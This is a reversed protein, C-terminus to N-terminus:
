PTRERVVVGNKYYTEKVRRGANWTEVLFLSGHDYLNVTITEGGRSLTEKVVVGARSLRALVTGDANYTYIWTEPPGASETSSDTIRGQTDYNWHRVEVLTGKVTVMSGTLRGQADTTRTEVRGAADTLTEKKGADGAESVRTLLTQTETALVENTTGAAFTWERHRGQALEGEGAAWAGTVKGATYTWAAEALPGDPGDREIRRLTGDPWRYLKDTYLPAGATDKVERRSLVGAEFTLQATEVPVGANFTTETSPLGTEPRYTVDWLPEGDRLDRVRLARGAADRDILRTWKEAGNEFLVQEEEGGRTEVRLTWHSATPKALPAPGLDAGLADSLRWQPFSQAGVAAALLFLFLKM